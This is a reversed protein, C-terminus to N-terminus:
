QRARVHARYQGWAADDLNVGDQWTLSYCRVTKRNREDPAAPATERPFLVIVISAKRDHWCSTFARMIDMALGLYQKPRVTASDRLARAVAELRGYNREAVNIGKGEVLGIAKREREIEGSSPM